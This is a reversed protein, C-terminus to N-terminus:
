AMARPAEVPKTVKGLLADLEGRATRRLADSFASPYTARDFGARLRVVWLGPALTAAAAASRIQRKLLTRTVARRAHRKPVVCGLWTGVPADHGLSLSALPNTGVSDDVSRVMKARVETSLETKSAGALAQRPASPGTAVHHLAFHASLACPRTKLVREFDASRVLRARPTPGAADTVHAGAPAPDSPSGSAVRPAARM